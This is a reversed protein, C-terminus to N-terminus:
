GLKPVLYIQTTANRFLLPYHRILQKLKLPYDRNELSGMVIWRVQYVKVFDSLGKMTPEKILSEYAIQRSSASNYGHKKWIQEHNVWGVISPRGTFVSYRAYDLYPKGMAEFIIDHPKTNAKIWLAADKEFPFTKAWYALGSLTPTGVQPESLRSHLAKVPYVLGLFVVILSAVSHIKWRYVLIPVAVGCMIWALVYFKFVTNIRVFPPGYTPDIYFLECFGILGSSVVVLVFAFDFKQAILKKTMVKKFLILGLPILFPVWHLLIDLLESRYERQVWFLGATPREYSLWYPLFMTISLVGIVMLKRPERWFSIICLLSLVPVAWANTPYHAGIVLAVLPICLWNKAFFILWLAALSWPISTYHPHFDGLLFSFFPFETIANPIARSSSWWSFSKFFTGNFWQKLWEANSLFSLYGASMLSCAFSKTQSFVIGYALSAAMSLLTPSVMNVFIEPALNLLRVPPVFL